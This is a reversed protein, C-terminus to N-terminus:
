VIIRPINEPLRTLLEYNLQNSMESFSSVSISLDGQDGILVVEDGRKVSQLETVDITFSNMSVTGIVSVREGNVLVRGQNSLSRSFGHSYGVPITAIKMKKSSLYSTGYGIFEGPKVEKIDMIRSKWSIIRKLPDKRGERKTIYSIYTETNSWYGYQMIGIRAMDMRAAPYRIAAASCATHFIQPKLGSEEFFRCIKKFTKLQNIIRLYNSISEAGAYHTCLGKFELHQWNDKLIAAVDRLQISNFGTKNFGTEVEVHIVSRKKLKKAVKLAAQLRHVDFVYFEIGNNVAWELQTNEIMGMILITAPDKIVKRVQYAEQASFVSFHDVGCDQAIPVFSKIGHGYANGKVVSSISTKNGLLKKIFRLNEKLAAKNIEIVSTDYM